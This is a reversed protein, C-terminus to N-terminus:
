DLLMLQLLVIAELRGMASSCCFFLVTMARKTPSLTVVELALMYENFM